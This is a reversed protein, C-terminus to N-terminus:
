IEKNLHNEFRDLVNNLPEDDIFYNTTNKKCIVKKPTIYHFFKYKTDMGQRNFGIMLKGDLGEAMSVFFSSQCLVIDSIDVLALIKILDNYGSLDLDFNNLTTKYGNVLGCKIFYCQDKFENIITQFYKPNPIIRETEPKQRKMSYTPSKILVIKKDTEFDFKYKTRDYNIKLDINKDQLGSTILTDEWINTTQIPYREGYRCNVTGPPIINRSRTKCNKINRYFMPFDTLVEVDINKKSFYNAIPYVYISDGVGGGGRLRVTM